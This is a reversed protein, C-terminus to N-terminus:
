NLKETVRGVVLPLNCELLEEKLSSSDDCYVETKICNRFYPRAPVARFGELLHHELGRWMLPDGRVVGKSLKKTEKKREGRRNRYRLAV